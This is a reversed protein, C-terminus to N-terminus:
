APIAHRTGSNKSVPSPTVRTELAMGLESFSKARLCMGRLTNPLMVLMAGTTAAKSATINKPSTSLQSCVMAIASVMCAEMPQVM